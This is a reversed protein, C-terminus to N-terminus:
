NSSSDLEILLQNYELFYVRCCAWDILVPETPLGLYECIRFALLHLRRSILRNILGEAKISLFRISNLILTRSIYQGYSLPLGVNRMRVANLVRLM